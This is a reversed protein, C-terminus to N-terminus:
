SWCFWLQTGMRPYEALLCELKLIWHDHFGENNSGDGDSSMAYGAVAFGGDSTQIVAQGRDDRAEAMLRSEVTPNGDSDFKLLWYDNVPLQKFDTVNVM